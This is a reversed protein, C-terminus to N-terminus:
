RMEALVDSLYCHILVYLEHNCINIYGKLEKINTHITSMSLRHTRIVDKSEKIQILIEMEKNKSSVTIEFLQIEDDKFTDLLLTLRYSENGPFYNVKVKGDIFEYNSGVSIGHISQALELIEDRSLPENALILTDKIQNLRKKNLSYVLNSVPGGFVKRNEEIAQKMNLFDSIIGM